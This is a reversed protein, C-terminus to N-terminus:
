WRVSHLHWGGHQRLHQQQPDSWARQWAGGRRVAERPPYPQETVSFLHAIDHSRLLWWPQATISFLPQGETKCSM